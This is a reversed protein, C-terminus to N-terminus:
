HIGSDGRGWSTDGSARYDLSPVSSWGSYIQNLVRDTFGGPTVTPGGPGGPRGGTPDLVVDYLDNGRSGMMGMGAWAEPSLDSSPAYVIQGYTPSNPRNDRYGVMLDPYKPKLSGSSVSGSLFAQPQYFSRSGTSSGARNAGALKANLLEMQFDNNQQQSLDSLYQNAGSQLAGALVDGMGPVKTQSIVPQLQPLYTGSLAAEMAREGTTCTWDESMLVSSENAFLSLAGSRLFTLPNFGYNEAAAMFAGMDVGGQRHSMEAHERSTQVPVLAAADARARIEKNMQAAQATAIDNAKRIADEEKKAQKKASSRGFLGGLLSVGGAILAGLPM